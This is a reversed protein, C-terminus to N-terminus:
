LGSARGAVWGVIDFCQLLKPGLFRICLEVEAWEVDPFRIDVRGNFSVMVTIRVRCLTDYYHMLKNQMDSNATKNTFNSIGVLILM